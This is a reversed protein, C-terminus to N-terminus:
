ISRIMSKVQVMGFNRIVSPMTEMSKIYNFSESPTEGLSPMKKGFIKGKFNLNRRLTSVRGKLNFGDKKDRNISESDYESTEYKRSIHAGTAVHLDELLLKGFATRSAPASFSRILNPPSMADADFEALKVHERRSYRPISEHVAKRDEWFSAGKEEKSFDTMSESGEKEKILLSNGARGDDFMPKEFEADDKLVNKLRDSIFKRTDKKISDQADHENVHFDNRYSRTSESRASTAGLDKTVSERVHNAIDRALQKPDTSREHLSTHVSNGRRTSYKKGKGEMELWLREKVEELFHEMSNGKEVAESSGTRLEEVENIDSSPKLIVIRTPSCSRSSTEQFKSRSVAEFSNAALKKKTAMDDKIVPVCQKDLDDTEIPKKQARHRNSNSYSTMKEMNLNSNQEKKLGQSSDNQDINSSCEWSKSAQWSEFEKKFKQLLEEQPHERRLPKALSSSKTSPSSYQKKNSNPSTQEKSQSFTTSSPSNLEFKANVFRPVRSINKRPNEDFSEKGHIKQGKEPPLTDMGMLRAVVGPGGRKITERSPIEENILLKVSTNQKEHLSM